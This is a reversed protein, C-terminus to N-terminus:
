YKLGTGIQHLGPLSIPLKGAPEIMGFMARVSARQLGAMDGYAVVYTKFEPFSGLVYPNGYAVGIVKKNKALLDRIIQAGSEPIGVSNRAGSRVRGFMAVIVIEANNAMERARAAQEMTSNDQLMVSGSRIRNERLFRNMAANTAEGDFGNSVGLVFVRKDKALPLLKDDNRVVTVAKNSVEEILAYVDKSSVIRDIQDLPTIKQNYLGTHHKWALLKRVSEDIRSESLRGSKVADKLGKLMADVDAPKELIDAGAEIARVGAEEQGVYLTLGSMSMADTVVLGKFGLETKLIDTTIKKSLTAPVPVSDSVIEAGEEADVRLANKLPKILTPDIQPMGVHAVMISAVGNEIAKKFPYLEVRDLRERSVDIVPLGRHSDINTDGHGPYHKATAIVGQSQVGAIFAEGFQAVLEPDESYSRVNIVPNDANNNVDLVPSYVQLIGMAKAERGTVVGMQYAYDPNRTAAVAMNWPFNAADFFRMGIGTEADLSILLPTKANEQMRNVLHVTEYMPAGFLIIGGLKNEVIHRKLDQFYESDQNAFKANIGIHVLQGVKEDITMKKLAKDAFKWSKDKPAFDSRMSRAATQAVAPLFSNFLLVITIAISVVAKM